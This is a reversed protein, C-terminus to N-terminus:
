MKLCDSIMVKKPMFDAKLHVLHSSRPGRPERSKLDETVCVVQVPSRKRKGAGTCAARTLSSESESHPKIWSTATKNKYDNSTVAGMHTRPCVPARPIFQNTVSMPIYHGYGCSWGRDHVQSNLSRPQQTTRHFSGGVPRTKTGRRRQQAAGYSLFACLHWM